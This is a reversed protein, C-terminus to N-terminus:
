VASKRRRPPKSVKAEAGKETAERALRLSRLRATKERDANRKAQYAEWAQAGERAQLEKKKFRIEARDRAEDLTADKLDM